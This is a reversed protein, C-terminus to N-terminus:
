VLLGARCYSNDDSQRLKAYAAEGTSSGTLLERKVVLQPAVRNRALFLDHWVPSHFFEPLIAQLHRQDLVLCASADQLARDGLHVRVKLSTQKIDPKRSISSREGRRIVEQVIGADEENDPEGFQTLEFEM